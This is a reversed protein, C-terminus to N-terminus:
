ACKVSGFWTGHQKVSSAVFHIAVNQGCTGYLFVVAGPKMVVGCQVYTEVGKLFFHHHNDVHGSSVTVNILFNGQEPINGFLQVLGLAKNKAENSSVKISIDSSFFNSFVGGPCIFTQGSSTGAGSVSFSSMNSLLGQSQTHSSFAASTQITGAAITLCFLFAIVLSKPSM